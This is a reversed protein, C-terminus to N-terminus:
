LPRGFKGYHANINNKWLREGLVYGFVDHYSQREIYKLYARYALIHADHLPRVQHQYIDYM